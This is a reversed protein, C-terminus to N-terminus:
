HKITFVSPALHFALLGHPSAAKEKHLPPLYTAKDIVTSILDFVSPPLHYGKSYELLGKTENGNGNGSGVGLM